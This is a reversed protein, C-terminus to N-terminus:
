PEAPADGYFSIELMLRCNVERLSSKSYLVYVSMLERFVRVTFPIFLQKGSCTRM